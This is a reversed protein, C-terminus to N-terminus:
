RKGRGVEEVLWTVGRKRRGMWGGRGKCLVVGRGWARGWWRSWWARRVVSAVMERCGVVWIGVV